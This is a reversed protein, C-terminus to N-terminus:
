EGEEDLINGIEEDEYTVDGTDPDVDINQDGRLGGNKKIAAEIAKRLAERSIGLMRAWYDLLQQENGSAQCVPPGVVPTNLEHYLLDLQGYILTAFIGVEVGLPGL